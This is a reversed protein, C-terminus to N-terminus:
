DLLNKGAYSLPSPMVGSNVPRARLASVALDLMLPVSIRAGTSHTTLHRSFDVVKM